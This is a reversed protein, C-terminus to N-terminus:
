VTRPRRARLTALAALSVLLLAAGWETLTPVGYIVEVLYRVVAFDVDGGPKANGAVVIRGDSQLAMGRGSDHGSGVATTVKGGTGFTTDLSGNSNYRAVAFDNNSGNNSRGAVVIKGDSQLAVTGGRSWGSAFGTTVKGDADFTTDLSGNGNYRAVAFGYGSGTWAYGAVVIRGDTQIAMSRGSDIGTGIPTIVIGDGGFTPDFEGPNARGSTAALLSGLAIATVLTLTRNM